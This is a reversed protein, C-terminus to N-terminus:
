RRGGNTGDKMEEFPNTEEEPSDVTIRSRSSPTFGLESAAKMLVLSARSKAHFAQSVLVTSGKKSAIGHENIKEQAAIMDCYASVYVTLIGIDLKKLLGKPAQAIIHKWEARQTENFWAPPNVLDGKPKPEKKNLPRKGPNGTVIKLHTPKPKRGVM